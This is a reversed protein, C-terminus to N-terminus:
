GQDGTGWRAGAVGIVAGGLLVLLVSLGLLLDGYVTDGM